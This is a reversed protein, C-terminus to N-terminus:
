PVVRRTLLRERIGQTPFESALRAQLADAEQRRQAVYQEVAERHRLYYALVAYVDALSLSSYASAIEEASDGQQFAEVVVELPVRTGSIRVAGGEAVTLPVPEVAHQELALAM